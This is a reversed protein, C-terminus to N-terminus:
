KKFYKEMYNKSIEDKKEGILNKSMSYYEQTKDEIEKEIWREYNWWWIPNKNELHSVIKDWVLKLLNVRYNQTILQPNRKNGNCTPCQLHINDLNDAIEKFQRSQYHWWHAKTWHLLKWCSICKGIGNENSELLRVYRQIEKLYLDWLKSKSPLKKKKVVKLKKPKKGKKVLTKNVKKIEKNKLKNDYSKLQRKLQRDFKLNVKRLEKELLENNEDQKKKIMSNRKAENLQIIALRNKDLM